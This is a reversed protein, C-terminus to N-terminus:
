GLLSHAVICTRYRSVPGSVLLHHQHEGCSPGSSFLSLVYGTQSFSGQIVSGDDICCCAAFDCASANVVVSAGSVFAELPPPTPGCRCSAGCGACSSSEVETVNWATGATVCRCVFQAQALLLLIGLLQLLLMTSSILVTSSGHVCRWEAQQAAWVVAGLAVRKLLNQVEFIENMTLGTRAMWSM